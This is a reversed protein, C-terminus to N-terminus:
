TSSKLRSAAGQRGQLNNLGAITGKANDMNNALIANGGEAVDKAALQILLEKFGFSRVPNHFGMYSTAMIYNILLCSLLPRPVEKLVDTFGQDASAMHDGYWAGLGDDFAATLLSFIILGMWSKNDARMFKRIIKSYIVEQGAKIGTGVINTGGNDSLPAVGNWFIRGFTDGWPEDAM